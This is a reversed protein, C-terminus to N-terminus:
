RPIFYHPLLICTSIDSKASYNMQSYGWIAFIASDNLANNITLILKCSPCYKVTCPFFSNMAAYKCMKYFHIM